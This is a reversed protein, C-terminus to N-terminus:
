GQTVKSHALRDQEVRRVKPVLKMALRDILKKRKAVLREIREKEGVSM